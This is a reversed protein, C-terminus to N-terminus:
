EGLMHALGGSAYDQPDIDDWELEAKGEAWADRDAQKGRVHPDKKYTSKLGGHRKDMELQRAQEKKGHWGERRLARQVEGHSSGSTVPGKTAYQEIESFDSGHDGYQFDVTEEFKVNEPHGGTFEAEQVWFEDKTKMGKGSVEEETERAGKSMGPYVEKGGETKYGGGTTNPEIWEGKKLELRVPQGHRGASWGHKTQEGIDVIVDGTTLDQTVEIPTGEPTKARHVMQREMAGASETVDDGEKIVRKVLSPFWPPMGPANSKVITETVKSVAKPAVKTIGKGVFPLAALGAMMKMFARRGMGGAGFPMRFQGGYKPQQMGGMGQPMQNQMWPNQQMKQQMLDMQNLQLNAGPIGAPQPGAPMQPGQMEPQSMGYTIAPLGARGGGSYSVRGGEAHKTPKQFSDVVIKFAEEESKGVERLKLYEDMTALVEAKRQPNDDVLIKEILDDTVGPYKQKLATREDVGGVMKSIGKDIFDKHKEGFRYFAGESGPVRVWGEPTEKWDYDLNEDGTMKPKGSTESFDKIIGQRKVKDRAAIFATHPDVGFYEELGVTKGTKQFEMVKKTLNDHQVIRQKEDLGKWKGKGQRIDNSAKIFLREIFKAIAGGGAMPIRDDYFDAAYSPEGVLPAIGGQAMGSPDWDGKDRFDEVTKPNKEKFRRIADKNEQIKKKIWMEKNIQGELGAKKRQLTEPTTKPATGLQVDGKKMLSEIGKKSKGGEIVKPNWGPFPKGTIPDGGEKRAREMAQRRLKSWEKPTLPARGMTVFFNQLLQQFIRAYM